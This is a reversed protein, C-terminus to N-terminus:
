GRAGMPRLMSVQREYRSLLGPFHTPLPEPEESHLQAHLLGLRAHWGAGVKSLLDTPLRRHTLKLSVHGHREALDFCVVTVTSGFYLSRPTGHDRSTDIWSYALKRCPEYHSVLGRILAGAGSRVPAEGVEFRLKVSGGARPEIEGEALWSRLSATRTLYSWTREIPGPLICDFSVTHDDTILGLEIM